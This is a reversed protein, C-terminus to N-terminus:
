FASKHFKNTHLLKLIMRKVKEMEYTKVIKLRTEDTEKYKIIKTSIWQEFQLRRM